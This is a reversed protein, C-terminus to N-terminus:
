QSLLAAEIARRVLERNLKRCEDDAKRLLGAKVEEDTFDMVNSLYPPIAESWLVRSANTIMDETIVLGTERDREPM